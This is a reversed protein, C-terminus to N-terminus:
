AAEGYPFLNIPRGNAIPLRPSWLLGEVGDIHLVRWNSKYVYTMRWWFWIFPDIEKKLVSCDCCDYYNTIV